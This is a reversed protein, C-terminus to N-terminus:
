AQLGDQTKPAALAHGDMFGDMLDGLPLLSILVWSQGGAPRQLTEEERNQYLFLSVSLFLVSGQLEMGHQVQHKHNHRRTPKFELKTCFTKVQTWRHGRSLYQHAATPLYTKMQQCKM